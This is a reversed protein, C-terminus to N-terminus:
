NLGLAAREKAYVTYNTIETRDMLYTNVAKIISTEIANVAALRQSSSSTAIASQMTSIATEIATKDTIKQISLPIETGSVKQIKLWNELSKQYDKYNTVDTISVGASLALEIKSKAITLYTKVSDLNHITVESPINSIANIATTKAALQASTYTNPIVTIPVYAVQNGYTVYIVASGVGKAYLLGSTADITAVNVDSSTWVVNTQNTTLYVYSGVTFTTKTPDITVSGNSGSTVTIQISVTEVGNVAFITTTGIGRANLLGTNSDITAVNNNGSIWSTNSKNSTLYSSTGLQFVRPTSTIELGGIQNGVVTLQVTATESGNMAYITAMGYNKARILGTAPEISIINDNSSAWTTGAVNSVLYRQEGLNLNTNGAYISLRNNTKNYVEITKSDVEKKDATMATLVTKGVNRAVLLGTSSDITAVATNSSSWIVNEKNATMITTDGVNLKTNISTIELPKLSSSITVVKVAIADKYSAIVTVEGQSLGTLVGAQSITAITEDTTEWNVKINTINSKYVSKNGANVAGSGSIKLPVVNIRYYTSTDKNGKQKKIMKILTSGVKKANIEGTKQNVSAIKTDTSLYKYTTNKTQKYVPLCKTKNGQLVTYTAKVKTAAFAPIANMGLTLACVLILVMLRKVSNM